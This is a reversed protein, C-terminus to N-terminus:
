DGKLLIFEFVKGLSLGIDAEVSVSVIDDTNRVAASFYYEVAQAVLVFAQEM